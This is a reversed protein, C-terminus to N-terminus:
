GTGSGLEAMLVALSSPDFDDGGVILNPAEMLVLDDKDASWPKTLYTFVAPMPRGSLYGPLKRLEADVTRKWAEDGSGYFVVVAGCSGLLAQNATRVRAADGEFAPLDVDVGMSTLHKRIPVTLARDEPACILYVSRSNRDNGGADSIPAAPATPARRSRELRDLRALVATRFSEPDSTILDAGFQADANRHLREIFRRQLEQDSKTGDPLWILRPLDSTESRRIALENQHEVISKMSPGDPILGYRQGILHVSLHCRTLMESVVRVYEAEDSPMRRDPLIEYGQRRLEGALVDRDRQRDTSCEALYVVSKGAGSGGVGDSATQDDDVSLLEDILLKVEWALIAVKRNFEKRFDDGFAPDIELPRDDEIVYFPYGLARRVADPLVDESDVPLKIVKFVRSKTEMIPGPLETTTSCFREVERTCWESRVFRPTVVAVLAASGPIQAAIEEDFIDNGQLKEDRWIRAREGLRTSLIVDLADHFRSVWGEDDTGIPQNDLHAYSIFVHRDFTM